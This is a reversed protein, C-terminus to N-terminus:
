SQALNDRYGTIKLKIITPDDKESVLSSDDYAFVVVPTTDASAFTYQQGSNTTGQLAKIDKTVLEHAFTRISAEAAYLVLEGEIGQGVTNEGFPGADNIGKLNLKFSKLAHPPCTVYSDAVDEKVALSRQRATKQSASKTTGSIATIAALSVYSITGLLADIYYAITGLTFVLFLSKLTSKDVAKGADFIGYLTGGGLLTVLTWLTTSVWGPLVVSFFALVVIAIVIISTGIGFIITKSKFWEKALGYSARWSTVGLAAFISGVTGVVLQETGSGPFFYTFAIAVILAVIGGILKIANMITGEITLKGLNISLQKEKEFKQKLQEKMELDAKKSDPLEGTHGEHLKGDGSIFHDALEKQVQDSNKPGFKKPDSGM